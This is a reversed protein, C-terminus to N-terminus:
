KQTDLESRKKHSVPTGADTGGSQDEKNHLALKAFDSNADEPRMVRGLFKRESEFKKPKTQTLAVINNLAQMQQDNFDSHKYIYLWQKVLFNYLSNDQGRREAFKKGL